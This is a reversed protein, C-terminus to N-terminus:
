RKEMWVASRAKMKELMSVLIKREEESLDQTVFSEWCRFIRAIEPMVDRAKETPFVQIARKDEPSPKREVFGDEELNVLQRAVNSKNIFIRRALQDQTIGPREFIAALYSAHCSKLGLSALEEQRYLAACRAIDTVHHMLDPM